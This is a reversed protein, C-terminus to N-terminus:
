SALPFPKFPAPEASFDRLRPKTCLGQITGSCAGGACQIMSRLWVRFSLSRETRATMLEQVYHKKSAYGLTKLFRIPGIDQGHTMAFLADSRAIIWWNRDLPHTTDVNRLPYHRVPNDPAHRTRWGAHTLRATLEAEEAYYVYREDFGGLDRLAKRSFAMNCGCVGNIWHRGQPPRPWAPHYYQFCYDSVEGGDFEPYPTDRVLVPGGVAGIRADTEGAFVRAYRALWHADGPRGDDDIFVVIDGAAMALGDNRSKSLVRVPCSAMKIRDAWRRLVEPTHDPSPGNVVIVEFLIGQQASLSQLLADLHDARNYTNIIVSITLHM